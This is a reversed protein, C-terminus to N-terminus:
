HRRRVNEPLSTLQVLRELTEIPLLGITRKFEMAHRFSEVASVPDIRDFNVNLLRAREFEVSLLTDSVPHGTAPDVRQAGLHVLLCAIPVLNFVERAVRIAASCVHTQVLENHKAKPMDKRSMRGSALEKFETFPVTEDRLTVLAEAFSPDDIRVKVQLGINELEEFPRLNNVATQYARPDGQLVGRALRQCWSWEESRARWTAEDQARAKAVAAALEERHVKAGGFLQESLRPKYSELVQRAAAENEGSPPPAASTAIQQWDWPIASDCHLTAIMEVYDDHSEPFLAVRKSRDIGPVEPLQAFHQRYRQAAGRESRRHAAILSAIVQGSSM